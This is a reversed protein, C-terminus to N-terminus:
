RGMAMLAIGAMIMAAGAIQWATVNESLFVAGTLMTGIVLVGAAIPFALSLPLLRLIVMWIAAGVVYLILGLLFIQSKVAEAAKMLYLGLCSTLAYIVLLGAASLANTWYAIM